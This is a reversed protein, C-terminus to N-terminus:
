KYVFTEILNKVESDTLKVSDFIPKLDNLLHYQKDFSCLPQFFFQNNLYGHLSAKLSVKSSNYGILRIEYDKFEPHLQKIDESWNYAYIYEVFISDGYKRIVYAKKNYLSELDKSKNLLKSKM